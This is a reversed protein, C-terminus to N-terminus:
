GTARGELARLREETEGATLVAVMARALAAMAVAARPELEGDHVEGLATELQEYVVILRPPVLGRLRVVSARHRGGKAQGAARAAAQSPTHAFCLGDALAPAQCPQGDRRTARCPHKPNTPM